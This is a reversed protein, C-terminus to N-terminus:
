MLHFSCELPKLFGKWSRPSRGLLQLPSISLSLLPLVQFAEGPLNKRAHGRPLTVEANLDWEKQSQLGSWWAPCHHVGEM